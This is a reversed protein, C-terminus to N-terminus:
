TGGLSHGSIEVTARKSFPPGLLPLVDKVLRNAHDRFGKHIHINLDEDFVLRSQICTYVDESITTGRCFIQQLTHGNPKIEYYLYYCERQKMQTPKLATVAEVDDGGEIVADIDDPNYLPVNLERLVIGGRYGHEQHWIRIRDLEDKVSHFKGMLGTRAIINELTLLDRKIGKEKKRNTIINEYGKDDGLYFTDKYNNNLASSVEVLHDERWKRTNISYGITALLACSSIVPIIKRKQQQPPIQNQLKQFHKGEQATEQTATSTNHRIRGLRFTGTSGGGEGKSLQCLPSPLRTISNINCIGKTVISNFSPSTSILM